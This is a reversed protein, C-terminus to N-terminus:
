QSYEEINRHDNSQVASTFVHSLVLYRLSFGKMFM